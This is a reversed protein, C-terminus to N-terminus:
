PKKRLTLRRNVVVEDKGGLLLDGFAEDLGNYIDKVRIIIGCKSGAFHDGLDDADEIKDEVKLSEPLVCGDFPNSGAVWCFFYGSVDRQGSGGQLM